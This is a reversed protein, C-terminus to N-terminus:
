PRFRKRDKELCLFYYVMQFDEDEIPIVIEDEIAQGPAFADTVYIVKFLPTFIGNAHAVEMSGTQRIETFRHLHSRCDILHLNM